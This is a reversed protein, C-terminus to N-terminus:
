LQNRYRDYLWSLGGITGLTGAGIGAMALTRGARLPAKHVVKQSLSDAMPFGIGGRLIGQEVNQRLEPDVDGLSHAIKQGAEFARSRIKM